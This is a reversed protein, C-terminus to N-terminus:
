KTTVAEDRPAPSGTVEATPLNPGLLKAATQVPRLIGIVVGGTVTGVVSGRKEPATLSAALAVLVQIVVALLGVVFISSLMIMFNPAIAVAVLALVSILVNSM